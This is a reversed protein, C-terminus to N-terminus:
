IGFEKYLKERYKANASAKFMENQRGTRMLAVVLKAAKEDEQSKHKQYFQNFNEM